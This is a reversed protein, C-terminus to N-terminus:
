ARASCNLLDIQQHQRCDDCQNRTPKFAADAAYQDGHALSLLVGSVDAGGARHPKQSKQMACNQQANGDPRYEASTVLRIQLLVRTPSCRMSHLM